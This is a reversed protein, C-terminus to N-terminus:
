KFMAAIAVALALVSIFLSCLAVKTAKITAQIGKEEETQLGLLDCIRPQLDRRDKFLDVYHHAFWWEQGHELKRRFRELEEPSLATVAKEVEAASAM